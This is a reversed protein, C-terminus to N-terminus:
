LLDNNETVHVRNNCTRQQRILDIPFRWNHLKCCTRIWVVLM